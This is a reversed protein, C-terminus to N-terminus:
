LKVTQYRFASLGTLQEDTLVTKIQKFDAQNLIEDEKGSVFLLNAGYRRFEQSLQRPMDLYISSLGSVVTAGIIIALLAILMRSKRKLIASFIMKFYLKRRTM